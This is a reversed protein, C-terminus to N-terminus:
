PILRIEVLSTLKDRGLTNSAAAARIVAPVRQPAVVADAELREAVLATEAPELEDGVITIPEVLKVSCTITAVRYESTRCCAPNLVLRRALRPVRASTSGASACPASSRYGSYAPLRSAYRAGFSVARAM